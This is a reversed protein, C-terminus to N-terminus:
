LPMKGYFKVRWQPWWYRGHVASIKECRQRSAAAVLCLCATHGPDSPGCSTRFFCACQDAGVAARQPHRVPCAPGVRGKDLRWLMARSNPALLIISCM